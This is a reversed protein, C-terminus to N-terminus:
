PNVQIGSLNVHLGKWAVPRNFRLTASANTALAARSLTITVGGSVASVYTSAGIGTGTVEMGVEIATASTAIPLTVTTSDDTISATHQLVDRTFQVNETSLATALPKSLTLTVGSVATLFTDTPIGPGEVRTGVLLGTGIDATMTTDGENGTCSRIPYCFTIDTIAGGSIAPSITVQGSGIVSIYSTSPIFTGRATDGVKLFKTSGIAIVTETDPESISTFHQVPPRNYNYFTINSADGLLPHSLTITTTGNNGAVTCDPHVGDGTVLDGIQILGADAAVVTITRAGAVASLGLITRAFIRGQYYVTAPGASEAPAKSFTIGNTGVGYSSTILVNGQHPIYALTGTGIPLTTLGSVTEGIISGETLDISTTDGAALIEVEIRTGAPLVSDATEGQVGSTLEFPAPGSSVGATTYLDGSTITLDESLSTAVTTGVRYLAVILNGVGGEDAAVMAQRIYTDRAINGIWRRQGVLLLEGAKWGENDWNIFSTTPFFSAFSGPTVASGLYLNHALHQASIQALQGVYHPTAAALTAASAFQRLAPNESMPSWSGAAVATGYYEVQTDLQVGQQGIRTPTAAARAAANAFTTTDNTTTTPSESAAIIIGANEVLTALEQVAMMVKDLGQEISEQSLAGSAPLDVLQTRPTDRYIRVLYTSAYATDTTIYPAGVGVETLTFEGAELLTGSEPLHWTSTSAVTVTHDTITFSTASSRTAITYTVGAIRIHSGVILASQSSSFAVVGATIAVTGTGVALVSVKVDDGDNYAFPVSYPTSTSNNGTYWVESDESELM